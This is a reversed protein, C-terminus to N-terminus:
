GRSEPIELCADGEIKKFRSEATDMGATNTFKFAGLEFEGIGARIPPFL